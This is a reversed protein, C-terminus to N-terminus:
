QKNIKNNIKILIITIIILILLILIGSGVLILILMQIEYPFEYHLWEEYYDPTYDTTNILLRFLNFIKM